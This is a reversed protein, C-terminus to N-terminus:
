RDTASILCPRDSKGKRKEGMPMQGGWKQKLRPTWMDKKKAYHTCGGSKLYYAVKLMSVNTNLVKSISVKYPHVKSTSVQTCIFTLYVFKTCIFNPHLFKTCM